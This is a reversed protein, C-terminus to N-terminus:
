LGTLAGRKVETKRRVLLAAVLLWGGYWIATMARRCGESVCHIPYTFGWWNPFYPSPREGMLWAGVNRLRLGLHGTGFGYILSERSAGTADIQGYELGEPALCAAIQVLFGLAFCAVALRQNAKAGLCIPYVFLLIFHALYRPGWCESGDPDITKMSCLFACAVLALLVTLFPVKLPAEIRRWGLFGLWLPPSMWLFGKGFGFLLGLFIAPRPPGFLKTGGAQRLYESYGSSFASGFREYNFFLLVALLPLFGLASYKWGRRDKATSLFVVAGPLLALASILRFTLAAGAFAGMWAAASVAKTRRWRLAFAFAATVLAGVPAEEQLSQTAYPLALTTLLALASFAFARSRDLGCEILLLASAWWWGLAVLPSYLFLVPLWRAYRVLEPHSAWLRLHHGLWDFPVFFLSQGIGFYSTDGKGPIHVMDDQQSLFPAGTRWLAKAVLLRQNADVNQVRGPSLLVFALALAFVTRWPALELAM